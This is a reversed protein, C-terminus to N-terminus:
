FLAERYAKEVPNGMGADNVLIDIRKYDDNTTKAMRITGKEPGLVV